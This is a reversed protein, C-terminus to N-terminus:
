RAFKLYKPADSGTNFLLDLISVGHEFPPYLQPYEDYGSYDMWKVKINENKFLDTNLYEKAAPGSIYEEANSQLCISLLRESKGNVLEYDSSSTIVTDIGLVKNIEQLFNVNIRSLYREEGKHYLDHIWDAQNEFYPSKRYNMEITKFHTRRWKQNAVKTESIKQLHKGKLEVPITLWAPGQSTKVKNRNRWDGKTYQAEDYIIFEDVMAILDFYGKWPIYNSQLIAVKKSM